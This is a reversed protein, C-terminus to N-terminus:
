RWLADDITRQASLAEDFEEQDAETWTTYRSLRKRRENVDLVQKLIFLVTSNISEGRSLSLAKLREAIEPTINRVTIQKAHM